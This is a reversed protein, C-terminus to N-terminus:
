EADSLSQDPLPQRLPLCYVHEDYEFRGTDLFGLSTYLSRARTNEAAFGIYLETCDSRAQYEDILMQLAARGYGKGQYAGAIMLRAVWYHQKEPDYAAMLFGVLVEDADNGVNAYIARSACNEPDFLAELMSYANSSVFGQQQQTLTMTLQYVARWNASTIPRLSVTM